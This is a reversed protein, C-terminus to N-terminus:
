QYLIKKFLKIEERKIGGFIIMLTFYVGSAIFITILLNIIGYPKIIFVIMTMIISSITSKIIFNSDFNIKFFKRTYSFTIIAAVFYAILTAFGAGLIGFFPILFLNFVLNLIAATIWITGFIKTKKELVLVNGIITHFGYFLFSLVIFPTIFYGNLAIEPTTLIMLIPKSLISLGFVAPIALLLFFKLSHELYIHLKKLNNEDHYKPLIAPLLLSFPSVILLIFYGLTYGPSYYGVFTTGLIIGIVFRDSSDLIWYSLNAPVTPLGFSLYERMNRFKPIKFSISRIIFFLMIMFIIINAILLGSVAIYISFGKLALFSVILVGLYTQIILFISHRKMQQFTRFYNLLFGNFATFFVIPIMLIVINSNNNFLYTGIDKSFILLILSVISTSILMLCSLSYFVEQIKKTSKESSLFRIMTYPLGLNTFSILLAITTNIQVWIGYDSTSFTKTM